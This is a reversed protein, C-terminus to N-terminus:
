PTSRWELNRLDATAVEAGTADRATLSTPNRNPDAHLVFGTRIADLTEDTGDAYRLEVRTVTDAVIGILPLKGEFPEPIPGRLLVPSAKLEAIWEADSRCEEVALGYSICALGTADQRFAALRTNGSRALVRQSGPAAGFFWNLTGPTEAPPIPDGPPAGGSFFEELSGFVDFIADRTQPVAMATGAALGVTAAAIAVIRRPSSRRPMATAAALVAAVQAGTPEIARIDEFALTGLEDIRLPASM